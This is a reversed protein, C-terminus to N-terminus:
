ANSSEELASIQQKLEAITEERQRVALTLAYLKALLSDIIASQSNNDFRPRPRGPGERKLNDWIELTEAPMRALAAADIRALQLLDSDTLRRAAPEKAQRVRLTELSSVVSRLKTSRWASMVVDSRGLTARSVESEIVLNRDLLMADAARLPTGAELRAIAELAAAESAPKVAM